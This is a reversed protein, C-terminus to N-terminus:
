RAAPLKDLNELSRRVDELPDRPHDQEVIYWEAGAAKGAAIIETWPLNGDGVPADRREDGEGVMDKVHLLPVRGAYKQILGVPDVNGFQAWYLDLELHVLNPDTENALIDYLTGDGLPAFEFAHNHYGFRLGASQCRAGWENFRAVIERAQEPTDFQRRPLAPVVAFRCGLTQLDSIVANIDSEFMTYQVHASVGQLGYEDLAARVEQVPLGGYGAFEVARYGMAAVQRLTGLFDRKAAERVTYLQLAVSSRDM